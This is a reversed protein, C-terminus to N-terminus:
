RDYSKVQSATPWGCSELYKAALDWAADETRDEYVSSLVVPWFRGKPLIVVQIMGPGHAVGPPAYRRLYAGYEVILRNKM